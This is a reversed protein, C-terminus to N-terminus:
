GALGAKRQEQHQDEVLGIKWYGSIYTDTPPVQREKHLFDRIARITMSEGAICTQLRGDPWELERMFKEQADSRVHPDSQILWHCTVGSPLDIEQVDAESTVEMIAVGKADRPMAELTAAAVPLASMDAAVLYWDAKFETIKPQSPGAFGCFSGPEARNAWASAPGEDGHDVFDVDMELADPRYHRVTYTRRTLGVGDELQRAFDERSQGIAPLVIKCHAGACDPAFGALEEGHFTVRIMHPTLFRSQKVTLLRPVRRKPRLKNIVTEINM